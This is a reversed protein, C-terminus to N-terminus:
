RCPSLVHTGTSIAIALLIVIGPEYYDYVKAAVPHAHMVFYDRDAQFSLCIKKDSCIQM